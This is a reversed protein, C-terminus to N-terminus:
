KKRRSMLLGVVGAGVTVPLLALTAVSLAFVGVAIAVNQAVYVALQKNTVRNNEDPEM